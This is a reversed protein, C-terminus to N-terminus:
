VSEIRNAKLCRSDGCVVKRNRGLRPQLNAGSGQVLLKGLGSDSDVTLASLHNEESLDQQALLNSGTAFSLFQM